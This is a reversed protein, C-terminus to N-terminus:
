VNIESDSKGILGAYKKLVPDVVRTIFDETQEPACGAFKWPSSIMENLEDLELPISEDDAIRFLLDNDGGSNKVVKGAAVAHTKVLEHINQRSEGRDVCEMIIDESAMFPLEANLYRAISNKYVVMDSTINEYLKLVSDCCLFSQPIDIRRIASDDLTREFWQNAATQYFNLPKTLLFRALSTMRESRMPNRKYPMASSGTQNQAFPEEQIKLNSMLRMDVAFKHASIAIGTLTEALKTDLKRPYTQGTVPFSSNFGLKKSVIDDLQQVKDYNNKFLKLYSAQTGTTGKVGRADLVNNEFFDLYELDTLLDQIYLTHRKGVTTPQAPQYHTYGLTVLDKHEFAFNRLNSIVSVLGERIYNVGKKIQLLESNCTVFCSTAGLHIIPEANPCQQGFAYVHAMVDHRIENEKQKAVDFNINDVFQSLDYVQSETVILNDESDKLGMENQAQALAVWCERWLSFKTQNSFLEQMRKSTYRGVLPEVYIDNM